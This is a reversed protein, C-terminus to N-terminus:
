AAAVSNAVAAFRDVLQNFMNLSALHQYILELADSRHLGALTEGDLAKLRARNVTLFGQVQLKMGGNIEVNAEMPELLGASRIQRMLQRTQEADRQYQQLFRINAQLYPSQSGDDLFLREGKDQGFGTCAEDICVVLQSDGPNGSLIFPYRRVYAPIYMRAWEGADNVFLNQETRLGLLAVPIDADGDPIFVIPYDRSVLTFESAVIMVAQAHRAYEFGKRTDICSLAHRQANIPVLHQYFLAAQGM